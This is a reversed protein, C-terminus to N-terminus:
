NNIVMKVDDFWVRGKAPGMGLVLRLADVGSPVYFSVTASKWSSSDKLMKQEMVIMGREDVYELALWAQGDLYESRYRVEATVTGGETWEERAPRASLQVMDDSLGGSTLQLSYAGEYAIDRDFKYSSGVCFDLYWGLPLSSDETWEEFGRCSLLNSAGICTSSLILSLLLSAILFSSKRV